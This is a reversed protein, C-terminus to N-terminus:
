GAAVRHTSRPSNTARAFWDPHNTRVWSTLAVALEDVDESSLGPRLTGLRACSMTLAPQYGMGRREAEAFQQVVHWVLGTRVADDIKARIRPPPPRSVIRVPKHRVPARKLKNGPATWDIGSLEVWLSFQDRDGADAFGVVFRERDGDAQRWTAYRGPAIQTATELLRDLRYGLGCEPMRMTHHHPFRTALQRTTPHKFRHVM